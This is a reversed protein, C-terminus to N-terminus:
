QDMVGKLWTAPHRLRHRTQWAAAPCSRRISNRGDGQYEGAGASQGPQDVRGDPHIRTAKRLSASRGPASSARAGYHQSRIPQRHCSSIAALRSARLGWPMAILNPAQTRGADRSTRGRTAASSKAPFSEITWCPSRSRAPPERVVHNTPIIYGNKADVIVGSGASQFQARSPRQSDPPPRLLRFCSITWPPNRRDTSRRSREAPAFTQCRRSQAPGHAGARGPTRSRPPAAAFGHDGALVAAALSAAATQDSNM